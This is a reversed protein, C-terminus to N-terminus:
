GTHSLANKGYINKSVTYKELNVNEQIYKIYNIYSHICSHHLLLLSHKDIYPKAMYLLRINKAVKNEICEIHEKWCLTISGPIKFM